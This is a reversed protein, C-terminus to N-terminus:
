ELVYLTGTIADLYTDGPEAGIILGPPGTGSYRPQGPPGQPGPAGQIGQLGPILIETVHNPEEVWVEISVQPDGTEVVFVVPEGITQVLVDGSM